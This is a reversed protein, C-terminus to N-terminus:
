AFRRPSLQPIIDDLRGAVVAAFRQALPPIVSLPNSFGSFVQIGEWGPVAGVLPLRDSSFSVLCRQWTGPLKGVAPLVQGVRERLNTESLPADVIAEPNTLTRSIQGIRIRGDLFQIAGADLIPPAPEHGPEEWLPDLEDRTAEAELRFREAEAPMVLTRLSMEVPDTEILEAHTFYQRVRMGAKQLMSRVKGGTCLAVQAAGLPGDSTMVGSVRDGTQVLETMQTFRLEGGRRQFAQWYAYTTLEVEIHGHRVTLAAAIAAPNLLPELECATEVSILQPPIACGAYNAAIAAPDSSSAITLVLDLERFQTEAELEESLSRYRNIGEECLQRMLPTTGSWYAIGGYSYRSAGQLSAHQELLLVSLGQSVLEYSLAAGTIGGGVVIWDYVKMCGRTYHLLCFQGSLCHEIM